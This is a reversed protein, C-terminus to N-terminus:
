EKFYQLCVWSFGLVFDDLSISKGYRIKCFFRLTVFVFSFVVMSILSAVLQPANTEGTPPPPTNADAM